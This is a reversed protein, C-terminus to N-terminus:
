KCISLFFKPVELSELRERDVKVYGMKKLLITNRQDRVKEYVNIQIRFDAETRSGPAVMEFLYKGATERYFRDFEPDFEREVERGRNSKGFYKSFDRFDSFGIVPCLPQDHDDVLMNLTVKGKPNKLPAGM